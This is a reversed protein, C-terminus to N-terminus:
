FGVLFYHTVEGQQSLQIIFVLLGRHSNRLVTFDQYNLSLLKDEFSLNYLMQWYCCCENIQQTHLGLLMRVCKWSCVNVVLQIWFCILGKVWSQVCCVCLCMACIRVSVRQFGEKGQHWNPNKSEEGQFEAIRELGQWCPRTELNWGRGATQQVKYSLM